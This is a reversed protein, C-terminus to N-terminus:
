EGATERCRAFLTRANATSLAAFAEVTMGRVEAICAATHVLLAPENPRQGRCPHPSLYPADTEILIRDDPVRAAVERLEGSKKYTVIGAFSVYMGLEVCREAMAADGTFSHMVGSLPGRERAEALAALMEDQCDRMHVIFPLGIQQSLRIHLDFYRQQLEFPSHDWYRDLGTEGLAVVKPKGALEVIRDWDGEAAEAAYNPQIGVAAYVGEYRQALEVCRVSSEATTGVTVITTVGAARAREVVGDVVGDFQEDDLHLHTDFLIM